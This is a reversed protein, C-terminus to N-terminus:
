LGLDPFRNIFIRPLPSANGPLDRPKHGTIPGTELGVKVLMSVHRWPKQVDLRPTRDLLNRNQEQHSKDFVFGSGSARDSEM